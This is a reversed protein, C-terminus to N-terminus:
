FCYQSAVLPNAGGAITGIQEAMADKAEEERQRV